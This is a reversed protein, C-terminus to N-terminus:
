KKKGGKGKNKPPYMKLLGEVNAANKAERLEKTSKDKKGAM